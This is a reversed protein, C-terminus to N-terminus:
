HNLLFGGAAHHHPESASSSVVVLRKVGHQSMAQAINRVGVRYINVGKNTFPTGLTSLVVDAPEVAPDAHM